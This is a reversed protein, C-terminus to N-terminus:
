HGPVDVVCTDSRRAILSIVQDQHIVRQYYSSFVFCMGICVIFTNCLQRSLVSAGISCEITFKPVNQEHRCAAILNRDVGHGYPSLLRLDQHMAEIYTTGRLSTSSLQTVTPM